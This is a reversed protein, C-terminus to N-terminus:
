PLGFHGTVVIRHSGIFELYEVFQPGTQDHGLGTTQQSLCWRINIAQLLPDLSEEFGPVLCYERYDAIINEVDYSKVMVDPSSGMLDRLLKTETNWALRAFLTFCACFVILAAFRADFWSTLRGVSGEGAGKSGPFFRHVRTSLVGLVLLLSGLIVAQVSGNMAFRLGLYCASLGGFLVASLRVLYEFPSRWPGQRVYM